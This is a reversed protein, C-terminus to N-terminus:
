TSAHEMRDALQDASNAPRSVAWPALATAAALGVTFAAFKVARATGKKSALKREEEDLDLEEAPDKATGRRVVITKAILDPFGRHDPRLLIMLHGIGSLLLLFGSLFFLMLGMGTPQFMAM